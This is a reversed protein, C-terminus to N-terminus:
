SVSGISNTQIEWHRMQMTHMGHIWSCNELRHYGCPQTNYPLPKHYIGQEQCDTYVPCSPCIVQNPKGGKQMIANYREPDECINGHQFPNAMRIEEPIDKMEDWRYFISRWRLISSIGKRAYREAASDALSRSAINLCTPDSNFLCKEGETSELVGVDSTTFAIIRTDRKLIEKLQASQEKVSQYQKLTHQQKHLKPPPRKIALPSLRGERISLVEESVTTLCSIGTDDWIETIPVALTPIETAPTAARIWVIGNDEWVAVDTVTGCEGRFKWHQIGETDCVYNFGRQLLADKARELDASGFSPINVGFSAPFGADTSEPEHLADRFRDIPTFLVEKTIVPPDLLHGMLIEYRMDWQSYGVDGLVELYVECHEIDDDTVQPTHM